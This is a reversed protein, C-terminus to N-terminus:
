VELLVEFHKCRDEALKAGRRGANISAIARLHFVQMLSHNIVHLRLEHGSKALIAHVLAWAAGDSILLYPHDADEELVEQPM